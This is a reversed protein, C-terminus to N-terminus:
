QFLFTSLLALSALVFAASLLDPVRFLRLKANTTEVVVVAASLAFLKLLYALLGIALAAPTNDAAIGIPFFVNVLLTMLVLQKISAGWEMLALYRGSYELLMAEHIMTLELHTAPNDVPIRGTEALLVVFLAAFAM